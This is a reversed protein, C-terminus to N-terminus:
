RGARRRGLRRRRGLTRRKRAMSTQEGKERDTIRTMGTTKAGSKLGHPGTQAHHGARGGHDSAGGRHPRLGREHRGDQDRHGGAPDDRGRRTRSSTAAWCRAPRTQRDAEDAGPRGGICLGHQMPRFAARLGRDAGADAGAEETLGVSGLEPQTFVASAVLDHDVPTKGGFVTDAFAHGERIAVPTLNIRDTVDGVAFISPVATQSYGDVVIQGRRGLKVGLEELGLGETNPAAPPM